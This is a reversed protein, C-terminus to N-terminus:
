NGVEGAAPGLKIADDEMELVDCDCLLSILTDLRDPMWPLYLEGLDKRASSTPEIGQDGLLFRLRQSTGDFRSLAVRMHQSFVLDSFIDRLLSRMPLDRRATLWDMFWAMSMRDSGGLELLKETNPDGRRALMRWYWGALMNLGQYAALDGHPEEAYEFYEHDGHVDANWATSTALDNGKWFPGACARQSERFTANLKRGARASRDLWHDAIEDVTRLGAKLADEFCWLFIEIAYRQHQRSLFCSWRLHHQQLDSDTIKLMRGNHFRRTYWIRRLEWGLLGDQAELTKLLLLTTLTRGFGADQPNSPLLCTLFCSKLSKFQPARFTAPDLGCEGLMKIDLWSFEPSDLSGLLRFNPVKSLSQDVGEVIRKVKPDDEIIPIQLSERGGLAESRDSKILGLARLSPGYIAAAYLSNPDNRKANKFTLQNPLPCKQTNGIKNRVDGYERDIGSEARLTLSLAVEIKERFTKYNKETYDKSGSCLSRFKWPIWTGIFFTGMDTTVNNLEPVLYRGVITLGVWRLGLFDIGGGRPSFDETLFPSQPFAKM